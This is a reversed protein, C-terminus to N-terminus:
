GSRRDKEDRELSKMREGSSVAVSKREDVENEGRRRRVCM